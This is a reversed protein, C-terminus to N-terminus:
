GHVIQVVATRDFTCISNSVADIAIGVVGGFVISGFIWPNVGSHVVAFSQKTKGEPVIEVTIDNCSKPVVVLGPLVVTQMGARSNVQAIARSGDSTMINIADPGGDIVTACGTMLLAFLLKKM